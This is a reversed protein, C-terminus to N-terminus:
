RVKAELAAVRDELTPMPVQSAEFAAKNFADFIARAADQETSPLTDPIARWTRKDYWRGISVGQANPCAQKVYQDLYTIATM